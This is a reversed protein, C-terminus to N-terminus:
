IEKLFSLLFLIMNLIIFHYNKLVVLKREKLYNKLFKEDINGYHLIIRNELDFDNIVSDFEEQTLPLKDILM